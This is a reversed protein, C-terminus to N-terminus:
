LHRIRDTKESQVPLEPRAPDVKGQKLWAAYPRPEHGILWALLEINKRDTRGGGNRLFTNLPRFRDTECKRIAVRYTEINEQQGFFSSLTVEDNKQYRRDFVAICEKKLNAPTPHLLNTLLSGKTKKEQYDRLVDSEYYEFM